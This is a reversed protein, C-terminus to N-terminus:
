FPLTWNKMKLYIIRTLVGHKNVFSTLRDSLDIKQNKTSSNSPVLEFDSGKGLFFIQQCYSVAAWTILLWLLYWTLKIYFTLTGLYTKNKNIKRCETSVAWSKSSQLSTYIQGHHKKDSRKVWRRLYKQLRTGLMFIGIKLQTQNSSTRTNTM